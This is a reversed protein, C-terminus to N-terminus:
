EHIPYPGAHCKGCIWTDDPEQYWANKESVTKGCFICKVKATKPRGGKKGNERSSAAKAETKAAGGKRGMAAAADSIGLDKNLTYKKKKEIEEEAAAQAAGRTECGLIRVKAGWPYTVQATFGSARKTIKITTTDMTTEEKKIKNINIYGFRKPKDLM